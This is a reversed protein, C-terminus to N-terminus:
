LLTLHQNINLGFEMLFPTLMPYGIHVSVLYVALMSMGLTFGTKKKYLYTPIPLAFNECFERWPLRLGM